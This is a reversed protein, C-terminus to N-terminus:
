LPRLCSVVRLVCSSADLIDHLYQSKSSEGARRAGVGDMSREGEKRRLARRGKGLRATRRVGTKQYKSPAKRTRFDLM